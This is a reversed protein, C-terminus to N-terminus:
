DVNPVTGPNPNILYDRKDPLPRCGDWQQHYCPISSGLPPGSDPEMEEYVENEDPDYSFQGGPVPLPMEAGCAVLSLVFTLTFMKMVMELVDM